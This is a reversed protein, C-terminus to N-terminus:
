AIVEALDLMEDALRLTEDDWLTVTARDHGWVALVTVEGHRFTVWAGPGGITRTVEVATVDGTTVNRAVEVDLALENVWTILADGRDEVERDDLEGRALARVEDAITEAYRHADTTTDTRTM